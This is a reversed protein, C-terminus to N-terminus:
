AAHTCMKTVRSLSSDWLTCPRCYWCFLPHLSPKVEGPLLVVFTNGRHGEIYPSAMRFFHVFKGHDARDLAGNLGNTAAAHVKLPELREAYEHQSVRGSTSAANGSREAATNLAIEARPSSLRPRRAARFHQGGRCTPLVLNTGHGCEKLGFSPQEYM